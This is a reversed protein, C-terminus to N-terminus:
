HVGIFYGLYVRFLVYDCCCWTQSYISMTGGVLLRDNKLILYDFHRPIHFGTRRMTSQNNRKIYKIIVQKQLTLYLEIIILHQNSLLQQRHKKVNERIVKNQKSSQVHLHMAILKHSHSFALHCIIYMHGLMANQLVYLIYAQTYISDNFLSSHSSSMLYSCM